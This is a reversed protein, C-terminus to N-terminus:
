TGVVIQEGGDMGLRPLMVVSNLHDSSVFSSRESAIRVTRWKKVRLEM